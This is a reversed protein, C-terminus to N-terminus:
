KVGCAKDISNMAATFGALSVNDTTKTGRASIGKIVLTSGKKMATVLKADEGPTELWAGDGETFLTFNQADVTATVSSDPKFPYGSIFSVEKQVKGAPRHTVFLFIEGRNVGTPLSKTPASRIYCSKEQGDGVTFADWDRNSGLLKPTAGLAPVLGATFGLLVGTLIKPLKHMLGGEPNELIPM